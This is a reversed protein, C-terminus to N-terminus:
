KNKVLIIQPFINQENETLESNFSKEEKYIERKEPYQILEVPDLNQESIKRSPLSSETLHPVKYRPIHPWNELLPYEDVSFPLNEELECIAGDDLRVFHRHLALTEDERRRYTAIYTVKEIFGEHINRVTNYTVSAHKQGRFNSNGRFHSNEKKIRFIIWKLYKESVENDYPLFFHKGDATVRTYIDILRGEM